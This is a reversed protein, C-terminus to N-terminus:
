KTTSHANNHRELTGKLTEMDFPVVSSVNKVATSMLPLPALSNRHVDYSVTVIATDGNAQMNTLRHDNNHPMIYMLRQWFWPDGWKLYTHFALYNRLEVDMTKSAEASLEGKIIIILRMRKEVTSQHYAARFEQMGWYSNLFHDTLVIITRKSAAVSRVIQDPIWVGGLWDRDHLCLKFGSDRELRPVLEERVFDVDKHSYSVFADYPRNWDDERDTITICPTCWRQNYLWNRLKTNRSIVIILLILIVISTLSAALPITFDTSQHQNHTTTSPTPAETGPHGVVWGCVSYDKLNEQAAWFQRASTKLVCVREALWTFHTCRRENLCKRGCFEGAVDDLRVIDGGPFDCYEAWKVRGGDGDQWVTRAKLGARMAYGEATVWGCVSYEALNERAIWFAQTTKKLLCRGDPFWTFHTCQDNDLCRRGCLEGGIEHQEIDGGSFDCHEGWRVLGNAGDMWDTAGARCFVVALVMVALTKMM